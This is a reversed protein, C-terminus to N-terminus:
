LLSYWLLCFVKQPHNQIVKRYVFHLIAAHSFYPLVKLVMHQYFHWTELRLLGFLFVDHGKLGHSLLLFQSEKIDTDFKLMLLFRFGHLLHELFYEAM